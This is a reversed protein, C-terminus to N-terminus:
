TVNSKSIARTQYQLTNDDMSTAQFPSSYKKRSVSVTSFTNSYSDYYDGIQPQTQSYDFQVWQPNDPDNTIIQDTILVLRNQLLKAYFIM